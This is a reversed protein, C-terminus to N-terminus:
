TRRERAMTMMVAKAIAEEVWAGGAGGALLKAVTAAYEEDAIPAAAERKKMAVIVDGQTMTKPDLDLLEGVVNQLLMYGARFNLLDSRPIVVTPASGFIPLPELRMHATNALLAEREYEQWRLFGDKLEDENPM